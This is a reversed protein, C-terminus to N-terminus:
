NQFLTEVQDRPLIRIGAARAAQVQTTETTNSPILLLNTTKTVREQQIWGAEQLRTQLVPDRFGTLVYTGKQQPTPRCQITPLEITTQIPFTSRWSLYGPVVKIIEAFSDSSIGKPPLVISNWKEVNSELELISAIRTKGFAKPWGHYAYLWQHVAAKALQLPLNTHLKSGNVKGILSQLRELPTKLIDQLTKVNGEVLKKATTKSIGEM